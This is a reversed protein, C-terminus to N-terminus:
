ARCGRGVGTSGEGQSGKAGLLPWALSTWDEGLQSLAPAGSPGDPRRQPPEWAARETVQGSGRSGERLPPQHAMTSSWGCTGAQELTEKGKRQGPNRQRSPLQQGWSLGGQSEVDGPPGGAGADWRTKPKGEWCLHGDRGAGGWGPM